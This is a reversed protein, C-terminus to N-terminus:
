MGDFGIKMIRQEAPMMVPVRMYGQERADMVVIMETFM